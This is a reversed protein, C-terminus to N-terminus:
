LYNNMLALDAELTNLSTTTQYDLENLQEVTEKAQKKSRRYGATRKWGIFAIFLWTM